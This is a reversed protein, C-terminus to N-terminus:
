KNIRDELKEICNMVVGRNKAIIMWRPLRTVMSYKARNRGDRFSSGIFSKLDLLHKENYAWLINGDCSIQLWLKCGFNPDIAGSSHRDIDWKLDVDTQQHCAPCTVSKTQPLRDSAKVKLSIGLLKYGCTSCHPSWQRPTGLVDGHLRGDSKWEQYTCSLCYIRSEAIIAKCDCKPCHCLVHNTYSWLNHGPDIYPTPHNEM